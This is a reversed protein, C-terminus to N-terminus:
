PLPVQLARCCSGKKGFIDLSTVDVDILSESVHNRLTCLRGVFGFAIGAIVASTACFITASAPSFLFRFAGANMSASCFPLCGPPILLVFRVSPQCEIYRVLRHWLGMVVVCGVSGADESAVDSCILLRLSQSFVDFCCMFSDVKLALIWGPDLSPKLLIRASRSLRFVFTSRTRIVVCAAGDM